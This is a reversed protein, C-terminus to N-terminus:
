GDSPEYIRRVEDILESWSAFGIDRAHGHLSGGFQRVRSRYFAELERDTPERHPASVKARIREEGEGRRKLTEGLRGSLALADILREDVQGAYVTLLMAIQAELRMMAHFQDTTLGAQELWSQMSESSILNRRLRFGRVSATFQEQTIEVRLAECEKEVLYILLSDRVLGALDLDTAKTFRSLEEGRIISGPSSGIRRESRSLTDWFITPIFSNSKASAWEASGDALRQLMGCADERKVDPREAEVFARLGSIEHAPLGHDTADKFLRGWSREPYFLRKALAVMEASTTTSILGRECARLLGVRLNVMATSVPRYGTDKDGHLIAVEDDDELDGNRFSEFVWGYGDMGFISLEAARLAGMSSAGIVRVGRSLAFLIEKHWVSPVSDFYGDVIGIADPREHEVIAYVDGMAAPPLYHAELLTQADAVPLTPGLFIFIKM